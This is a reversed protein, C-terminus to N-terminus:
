SYFVGLPLKPHPAEERPIAKHAPDAFSPVEGQHQWQGEADQKILAGCWCKTLQESM